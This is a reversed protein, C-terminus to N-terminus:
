NPQRHSAVLSRLIELIREREHARDPPEHNPNQRLTVFAADHEVRLYLVWTEQDGGTASLTLSELDGALNLAFANLARPHFGGNPVVKVALVGDVSVLSLSVNM